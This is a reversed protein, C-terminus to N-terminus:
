LMDSESADARAWVHHSNIYELRSVKHDCRLCHLPDEPDVWAEKQLKLIKEEKAAIRNELCKIVDEYCKPTRVRPTKNTNRKGQQDPGPTLQWRIVQM